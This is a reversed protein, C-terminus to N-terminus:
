YGYNSGTQGQQLQQQAQDEASQAQQQAQTYASSAQQQISRASNVGNKLDEGCGTAAIAVIAATAAVAVRTRARRM